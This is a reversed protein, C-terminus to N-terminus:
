FVLFGKRLQSKVDGLEHATEENLRLFEKSEREKEKFQGLIRDLEGEMREKEHKLADLTERMQTPQSEKQLKEYDALTSKLEAIQLFLQGCEDSALQNNDSFKSKESYTFGVFPLHNGTFPMTGLGSPADFDPATLDETDTDFYSTDLENEIKPIGEEPPRTNKLNEWDIGEYFPHSKFEAIGNRGLRHERDCILGKLLLCANAKDELQEPFVLNSAHNMIKSYTELLSEAYFATDGCFMEYIVIGLSWWDCEKGYRPRNDEMGRLIEPSIYDPTGVAVKSTVFGRADMKLCSGFDGLRIHGFKDILINDPKIDRHVYGLEHLSDIAMIIEASYFRVTPEPINYEHRALLTLLDGGVYYEMVLYLSKDDHFAYYLKTIWDHNGHVLIDREERFCATDAKHVLQWKHMIKMAFVRQTKKLKVLAVEGFAGRGIVKLIDYDKISMQLQNIKNVYPKAWAIFKIFRKERKLSSNLVEDYLLRFIDIYTEISVSDGQLSITSTLIRELEVLRSEASMEIANKNSM